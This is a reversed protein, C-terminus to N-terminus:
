LLDVNSRAVMTGQLTPNINHERKVTVVGVIALEYSMLMVDVCHSSHARSRDSNM